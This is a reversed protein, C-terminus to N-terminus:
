SKFPKPPVGSVLSEKPAGLVPPSNISIQVVDSKMKLSGM